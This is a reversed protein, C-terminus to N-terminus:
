NSTFYKTINNYDRRQSMLGWLIKLIALFTLAFIVKEGNDGIGGPGGMDGM